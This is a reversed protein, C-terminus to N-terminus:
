PLKTLTAEVLFMDINLSPPNYTQSYSIIIRRGGDFALEPHERAWKGKLLSGPATEITFPVSWPGRPHPATRMNIANSGTESYVALFQGLYPNWSVSLESTCCLNPATKASSLDSVWSSGDWVQYADREGVRSLSARAVRCGNSGCAYVYVTPSDDGEYVVAGTTFSPEPSEFLLEPDRQAITSGAVIHAIGAGLVDFVGLGNAKRVSYYVVGTDSGTAVVSGVHLYKVYYPKAEKANFQREEESFPLFEYPMGDSDLREEIRLMADRDTSGLAAMSSRVKYGDADPQSTGSGHFTWFVQGGILASAGGERGAVTAPKELMGKQQVTASLILPHTITTATNATRSSLQGLTNPTPFVTVSPGSIRTALLDKAVETSALLALCVVAGIFLHVQKGDLKRLWAYRNRQGRTFAVGGALLTLVATLFVLIGRLVILFDLM